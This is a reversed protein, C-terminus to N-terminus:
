RVKTGGRPVTGRGVGERRDDESPPRPNTSFPQRARISAAGADRLDTRKSSREGIIMPCPLSSRKSEM